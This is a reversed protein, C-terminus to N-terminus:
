LIDCWEKKRSYEEMQDYEDPLGDLIRNIAQLMADASRLTEVADSLNELLARHQPYMMLEEDQLIEDMIQRLRGFVDESDCSIMSIEKALKSLEQLDREAM